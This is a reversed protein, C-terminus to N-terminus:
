FLYTCSLVIIVLKHQALECQLPFAMIKQHISPSTQMTNSQTLMVQQFSRVMEGFLLEQSTGGSHSAHGRGSLCKCNQKRRCALLCLFQHLKCYSIRCSIRKFAQILLYLSKVVLWIIQSFSTNQMECINNKSSVM